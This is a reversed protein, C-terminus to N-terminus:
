RCRIKINFNYQNNNLQYVVSINEQFLYHGNLKFYQGSLYWGNLYPRKFSINKLYKWRNLTDCHENAGLRM